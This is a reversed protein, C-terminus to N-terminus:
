MEKQWENKEYGWMLVFRQYEHLAEIKGQAFKKFNLNRGSGM